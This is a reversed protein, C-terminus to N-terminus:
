IRGSIFAGPRVTERVQRQDSAKALEVWYLYRTFCEERRGAERTFTSALRSALLWELATAFLAPYLEESDVFRIWKIFDAPQNTAICIADGGTATTYGTLSWELPLCNEPSSLGGPGWDVLGAPGVLMKVVEVCGAPREYAYLVGPPPTVLPVVATRRTAFRWWHSAFITQRAGPYFRRCARGTASPDNPDTLIESQGIHGLAANFIDVREAM